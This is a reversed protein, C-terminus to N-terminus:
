LWRQLQTDKPLYLPHKPCGSLTTGLHWLGGDCRLVFPIDKGGPNGWACVIKECWRGAALLQADNDPGFAVDIPMTKLVRPDTSRYAFKNVVLMASYGWRQSFDICRRITPDDISADATSPNLMVWGIVSGDGWRRKLSYRYDGCDSIHADKIM